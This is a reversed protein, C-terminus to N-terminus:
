VLGERRKRRMARRERPDTGGFIGHKENNDLAYNLCQIRVPCQACIAKALPATNEGLENFWLNADTQACLAEAHWSLDPSRPRDKKPTPPGFSWINYTYPM